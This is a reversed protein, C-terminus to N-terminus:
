RLRLADWCAGVVLNGKAPLAAAAPVGFTLFDMIIESRNNVKVLERNDIRYLCFVLVTIRM